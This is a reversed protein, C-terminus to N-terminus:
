DLAVEPGLVKFGGACFAADASIASLLVSKWHNLGHFKFCSKADRDLYRSVAGAGGERHYAYLSALMEGLALIAEERYLTALDLISFHSNLTQYRRLRMSATQSVSYELVM